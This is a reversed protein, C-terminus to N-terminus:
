KRFEVQNDLLLNDMDIEESHSKIVANEDLIFNVPISTVNIEDQFQNTYDVYTPFSFDNEKLYKEIQEINTSKKDDDKSLNIYIVAIGINQDTLEDYTQNLKKKERQCDSCWDTSLNIVFKEKGEMLDYLNVTNGDPDTLKMNPFRDGVLYGTKRKDVVECGEGQACVKQQSTMNPYDEIQDDAFQSVKKGSFTIIILILTSVILIIIKKM